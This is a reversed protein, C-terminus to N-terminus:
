ALEAAIAPDVRVVGALNSTPVPVYKVYDGTHPAEIMMGNGWYIAVHDINSPDTPDYHWFLLDGPRADAYPIHPGTWWQEQSVRPMRIGVQAFAWQVLGSCDFSSPGTAGWVYPMGLRSRAANLFGAIQDRTLFEGADRTIVVERLLEARVHSGLADLVAKRLTLPNSKPASILAGAHPALGIQEGRAASVVADVDAMGMSAFAGVRLPTVGASRRVPVTGGLTMNVEHGMDFSVTLNGADVSQWLPNSVATRRPTWPRFTQPNVGLVFARHGDIGAHGAAVPQVRRVHALRNITQLQRRTLPSRSTVLLTAAVLHKPRANTLLVHHAKRNHQAAPQPDSSVTPSPQTSHERPQGHRSPQTPMLSPLDPTPVTATRITSTPAAPGTLAATVATAGISLTLLLAAAIVGVLPLRRPRRSLWRRPAGLRHLRRRRHRRRGRALSLRAM